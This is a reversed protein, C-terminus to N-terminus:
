PLRLYPWCTVIMPREGRGGGEDIPRAKVATKFLALLHRDHTEEWEGKLETMRSM